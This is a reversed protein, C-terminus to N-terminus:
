RGPVFAIHGEGHTAAPGEGIRRVACSRACHISITIAGAETAAVLDGVELGARVLGAGPLVLLSDTGATPSGPAGLDSLYASGTRDFPGPVFGLAEVGIDSGAPLGSDAVVKVTGSPSFAFIRGTKEDAAILDGGFRGFSSPAVAIGGEVAPADRAIVTPRGLCDIAYLTTKGAVVTTVLLRYGFRGVLDFGIGSPFADAPLDVLRVAQGTRRIRAVGPTSDADLAFVDDRKFSCRAGPLRRGPALAIYPESGAAVYGAPGRAFQAAPAGPQYLFLGSRTSLVLQGDTRPGAVDVIAPVSLVPRWHAEPPAAVATVALMSAALLASGTVGYPRGGLMVTVIVAAV